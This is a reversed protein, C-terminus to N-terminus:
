GKDEGCSDCYLTGCNSCEYLLEQQEEKEQAGCYSCDEHLVFANENAM